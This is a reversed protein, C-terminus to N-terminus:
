QRTFTIDNIFGEFTIKDCDYSIVQLDFSLNLGVDNKVKLALVSSGEATWTKEVVNGNSLIDGEIDEYTGDEDFKL